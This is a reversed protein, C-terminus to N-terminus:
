LFAILPHDGGYNLSEFRKNRQQPSFSRRAKEKREREMRWLRWRGRRRRRLAKTRSQHDKSTATSGGSSVALTACSPHHLDKRGRGGYRRMGRKVLAVSSVIRATAKRRAMSSRVKTTPTWVQDSLFPAASSPLPHRLRLGLLMSSNVIRRESVNVIRFFLDTFSNLRLLVLHGSKGVDTFAFLSLRPVGLCRRRLSTFSPTTTKLDKRSSRDSTQLGSPISMDYMARRGSHM